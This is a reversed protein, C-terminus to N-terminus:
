IMNTMIMLFSWNKVRILWRSGTRHCKFPCYYGLSNDTNGRLVIDKPHYQVAFFLITGSFAIDSYVTCALLYNYKRWFALYRKKMFAMSILGVYVNGIYYSLNYPAYIM